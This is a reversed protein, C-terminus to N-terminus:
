SWIVKDFAGVYAAAIALASLVTVVSRRSTFRRVM